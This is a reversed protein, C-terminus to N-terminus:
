LRFKIIILISADHSLVKKPSPSLQIPSTSRLEDRQFYQNKRQKITEINKFHKIIYNEKLYLNNREVSEYIKQYINM